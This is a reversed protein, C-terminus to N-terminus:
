DGLDLLDRIGRELDKPMMGNKEKLNNSFEAYVHQKVPFRIEGFTFVVDPIDSFDSNESDPSNFGDEFDPADFAGAMAEFLLALDDADVTEPLDDEVRLGELLKL